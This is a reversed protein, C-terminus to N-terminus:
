GSPRGARRLTRALGAWAAATWVGLALLLLVAAATSLGAQSGWLGVAAPLFLVWALVQAPPALATLAAWADGALSGGAIVSVAAAAWFAVFVASAWLGLGLRFRRERPRDV